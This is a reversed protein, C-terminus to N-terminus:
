GWGNEVTATDTSLTHRRPLTVRVLTGRPAAQEFEVSGGSESVIWSVLWLGLGHAHKLPTEDGSEIIELDASPIGPGDDEIEVTVTGSPADLHEEVRVRVVPEPRDSHEIANELLNDFVSDVLGVATIPATEPGEYRIDAEPHESGYQDVFARLRSAIDIRRGATEEGSRAEIGRAQESLRVLDNARTTIAAAAEVRDVVGDDLLEAYGIIVNADNRIDHRLVRNLVRLKRRQREQQQRAEHLATVDRLISLHRGPRISATAAFEVILDMGDARRLPFLGRDRDSQLFSQWAAEVDYEPAAFDFPTCGLLAERSVGFLECAAPNADVYEGDDDSILMADFAREFVARFLQESEDPTAGHEGNGAVDSTVAVFREVEDAGNTVPVVTQDIVYQTGNKRQNVLRGSWVDGDLITRWLEAFFADNQEGSDLISPQSGVAEASSYGTEVEFAQNVYEITGDVTTLFISSAAHDVARKFARLEAELETRDPETSM